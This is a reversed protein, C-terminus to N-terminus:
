ASALINDYSMSDHCILLFPPSFYSFILFCVWKLMVRYSYGGQWHTRKIAVAKGLEGGHGLQRRGM